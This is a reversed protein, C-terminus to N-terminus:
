LRVGCEENPCRSAGGDLVQVGCRECARRDCIRCFTATWDPKDAITSTVLRLTQLETKCHKCRAM